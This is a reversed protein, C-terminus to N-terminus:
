VYNAGDKAKTGMTRKPSAKNECGKRRESSGPKWGDIIRAWM